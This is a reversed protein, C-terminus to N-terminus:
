QVLRLKIDKAIANFIGELEAPTPAYYEYGPGSAVQGLFGKDVGGNGELGIIYIKIGKDKLEQAHDIAM